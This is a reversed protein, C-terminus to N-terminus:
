RNFIKEKQSEFEEKSITGEDFLKKLREIQNLKHTLDDTPNNQKHNPKESKSEQQTNNIIITTKAKSSFAWILAVIWGIFTFGLFLNLLFVGIKNPSNRSFVIMTPIFYIILFPIILIGLETIGIRM